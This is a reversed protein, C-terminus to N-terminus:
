NQIFIRWGLWVAVLGLVFSSAAYLLLPLLEGARLMTLNEGMFASFTTFGGCFGAMLLLRLTPSALDGREVLAYFIGILLCGTVNVTLTGWPFDVNLVRGVLYRLVSGAFGGLGVFFIEKFM